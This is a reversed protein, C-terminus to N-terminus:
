RAAAVTHLVGSRSVVPARRVSAETIKEGGPDTVVGSASGPDIYGSVTKVKAASERSRSAPATVDGERQTTM